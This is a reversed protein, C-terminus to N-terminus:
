EAFDIHDANRSKFVEFVEMLLAEDEIAIYEEEITDTEEDYEGHIIEMIVVEEESEEFDLLVIYEKDEHPFVDLVEFHVENGDDDILMVFNDDDMEEDLGDIDDFNECM